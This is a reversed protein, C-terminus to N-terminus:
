NGPFEDADIWVSHYWAFLWVPAPELTHCAVEASICAEELRRRKEGEEAVIAEGRRKLAREM